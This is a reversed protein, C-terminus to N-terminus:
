YTDGLYDYFYELLEYRGMKRCKSFNKAVFDCLEGLPTRNSDKMYSAHILSVYELLGKMGYKEEMGDYLGTHFIYAQSGYTFNYTKDNYKLQIEIDYM